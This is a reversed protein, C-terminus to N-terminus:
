ERGAGAAIAATPKSNVLRALTNANGIANASADNNFYAYVEDVNEALKRLRRAWDELMRDTYKGRYRESPGHFRVYAFRATAALPCKVDPKDYSCFAVGHRRLQELTDEGFWSKDRFEFTCRLGRPLLGLFSELRTAHEETRKFYPPLQFLLPGLNSKLRAAGKRVRELSDECDKLRKRHTLYRHAKVAYRFGEPATERWRDWSEASPEIYFSNNIEVTPFHECYYALWDKQALGKPYFRGHWDRYQWGSTGVWFRAM